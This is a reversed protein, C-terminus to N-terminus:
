FDYKDNNIKIFYTDSNKTYKLIFIKTNKFDDKKINKYIYKNWDYKNYLYTNTNYLNICYSTAFKNNILLFLKSTKFYWDLDDYNKIKKLFCIEEFWKQTLNEAFFSFWTDYEIYKIWWINNDQSINKSINLFFLISFIFISLNIIIWLFINM